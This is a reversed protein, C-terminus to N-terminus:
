KKPISRLILIDKMSINDVAYACFVIIFLMEHTGNVQTCLGLTYAVLFHRFPLLLQLM